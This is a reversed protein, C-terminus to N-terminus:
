DQGRQLQQVATRIEAITAEHRALASNMEHRAQNLDQRTANTLQMIASKLERIDEHSRESMRVMQGLMQSQNERLGEILKGVLESEASEKKAFVEWGKQLCLLVIAGALGWESGTLPSANIPTPTPEVGITQLVQMSVGPQKSEPREWSRGHAM